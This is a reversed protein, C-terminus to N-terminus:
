SNRREPIDAFEIKIGDDYSVVTTKRYEDDTEPYDERFHAGRSEKRKLACELMAQAIIIKETEAKNLSTKKLVAIDYIAKELKEKNRIISM